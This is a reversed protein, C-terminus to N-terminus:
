LHGEKRLANASDLDGVVEYLKIARAFATADGSVRWIGANADAQSEFDRAEKARNLAVSYSAIAETPLKMFSLMNGMRLRVATSDEAHAVQDLLLWAEGWLRQRQEGSWAGYYVALVLKQATATQHAQALATMIAKQMRGITPRSAASVIRFGLGKQPDDESSNGRNDQVILLYSAGVKLPPATKPFRVSTSRIGTQHWVVQGTDADEISVNYEHAGRAVDNWRLVLDNDLVLTNRPYLIYLLPKQASREPGPFQTGDYTFM